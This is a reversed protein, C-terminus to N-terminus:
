KIKAEIKQLVEITKANIKKNKMINAHNRRKIPKIKRAKGM